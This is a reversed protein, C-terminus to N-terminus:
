KDARENPDQSQRLQREIEAILERSRQLVVTLDEPLSKREEDDNQTMPIDSNGRERQEM